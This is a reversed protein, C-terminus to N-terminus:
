KEGPPIMALFVKVATEDDWENAAMVREFYRVYDDVSGDKKMPEPRVLMGQGSNVAPRANREVPSSQGRRRPM